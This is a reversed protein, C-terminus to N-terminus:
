MDVQTRGSLDLPGAPRVAGDGTPFGLFTLLDFVARQLDIRESASGEKADLEDADIMTIQMERTQLSKM